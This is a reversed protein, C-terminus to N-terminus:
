KQVKALSERLKNLRDLMAHDPVGPIGHILTGAALGFSFYACDPMGMELSKAGSAMNFYIQDWIGHRKNMHLM